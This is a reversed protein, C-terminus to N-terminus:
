SVNQLLEDILSYLVGIISGVNRSEVGIFRWKSLSEQCYQIANEILEPYAIAVCEIFNRLANIYDEPTIAKLLTNIFARTFPTSGLAVSEQKRLKPMPNYAVGFIILLCDYIRAIGYIRSRIIDHKVNAGLAIKECSKVIECEHEKQVKRIASISGVILGSGSIIRTIHLLTERNITLLMRLCENIDVRHGQGVFERCKEAAEEHKPTPYKFDLAVVERLLKTLKTYVEEATVNEGMIPALCREIGKDELPYAFPLYVTSSKGRKFEKLSKALTDVVKRYESLKSEKIKGDGKIINDSILDLISENLLYV